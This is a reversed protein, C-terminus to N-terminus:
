GHNEERETEPAPSQAAESAEASEPLETPSPTELPELPEISLYYYNELTGSREVSYFDGPDIVWGGDCAVAPCGLFASMEADPEEAGKEYADRWTFYRDMRVRTYMEGGDILLYYTRRGDPGPGIFRIAAGFYDDPGMSILETCPISFGGRGSASRIPVDTIRGPLLSALGQESLGRLLRLHKEFTTRILKLSREKLEEDAGPNLDTYVRQGDEDHGAHTRVTISVVDSGLQRGVSIGILADDNENVQEEDRYLFIVESGSNELVTYTDRDGTNIWSGEQAYWPMSAIKTDPWVRIELYSDSFWRGAASGGGEMRKLGVFAAEGEHTLSEVEFTGSGPLSHIGVLQLVLGDQIQWSVEDNRLRWLPYVAPFFPDEAGRSLEYALGSQAPVASVSQETEGGPGEPEAAPAASFVPLQPLAAEEEGEPAMVLSVVVAAAVIVVAASLLMGIKKWFGAKFFGVLWAVTIVLLAALAILTAKDAFTASGAKWARLIRPTEGARSLLGQLKEWLFLLDRLITETM